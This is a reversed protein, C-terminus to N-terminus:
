IAPVGRPPTSVASSNGSSRGPKGPRATMLGLSLLSLVDHSETGQVVANQNAADGRFLLGGAADDDGVGGLFLRLFAFDDGDAGARDAVLALDTREVDLGA